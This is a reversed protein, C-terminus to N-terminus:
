GRQVRVPARLFPVARGLCHLHAGQLLGGRLVRNAASHQVSVLCCNTSGWGRGGMGGMGECCRRRAVRGRGGVLWGRVLLESGGIHAHRRSVGVLGRWGLVRGREGGGDGMVWWGRRLVLGWLVVQLSILRRHWRRKGIRGRVGVCSRRVRGAICRRRSGRRWCRVSHSPAPVNGTMIKCIVALTYLRRGGRRSLWPWAHGRRSDGRRSGILLRRVRWWRNTPSMWTCWRM